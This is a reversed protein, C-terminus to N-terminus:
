SDEKKFRFADAFSQMANVPKTFILEMVRYPRLRYIGMLETVTQRIEESQPEYHFTPTSIPLIVRRESLGLLRKEVSGETSRLEQSMSLNSWEKEPHDHLLALVEIQEVSDICAFIFQRIDEPIQDRSM